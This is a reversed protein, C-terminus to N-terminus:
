SRNRRGLIVVIVIVAIAFVASLVIILTTTLNLDIRMDDEEVIGDESIKAPSAAPAADNSLVAGSDAFHQVASNAAATSQAAAPFICLVCLTLAAFLSLIKKM